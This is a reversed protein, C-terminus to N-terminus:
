ARLEPASMIENWRYWYARMQLENDFHEDTDRLTNEDPRYGKSIDNWEVDSSEFGKQCLELMEVDDPTAFGGPGLFSLAGENRIRRLVPGEDVPGLSWARIIMRNHATPTVTRLLVTQQDNIISNPFIVMNRNTVAIRGAKAAGLRRELELRKAEIEVRAQEGWVPLWQAVPRGTPIELEFCAHGNGLSKAIGRINMESVPIGKVMTRMYDVFSSHTLDLHYGDYSNECILKYNAKIEYEHCGRVVEMGVGSQEAIADLMPGADALYDDLAVAAADFNVFYFGARAAIRPVPQLDYFGDENFREGYGYTAHQNFLQDSSRYAWGHYPCVFSKRNGRPERCIAAGRHRCTNFFANVRGDADRNFILERDVVQRVVFDGKERVESEHGLVIWSRHLIRRREEEFIEPSTYASRHVLFRGRERDLWLYRSRYSRPTQIVAVM